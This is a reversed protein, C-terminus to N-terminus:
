EPRFEGMFIFSVFFLFVLYRGIAMPHKARPKPAMIANSQIHSAVDVLSAQM